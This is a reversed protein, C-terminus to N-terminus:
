EAEPSKSPPTVAEQAPTEAGPVALVGRKYQQLLYLSKLEGEKARGIARKQDLASLEPVTLPLVFPTAAGASLGLEGFRRRLALLSLPADGLCADSALFAATPFQNLRALADEEEILRTVQKLAEIDRAMAQLAQYHGIFQAELQARKQFLSASNMNRAQFRAHQAEVPQVAEWATHLEQATEQWRAALTRIVNQPDADYRAAIQGIYLKVLNQRYQEFTEPAIQLPEDLFSQYLRHVREPYIFTQEIQRQILAPEMLFGARAMLAQIWDQDSQTLYNEATQAFLAAMCFLLIRQPTNGARLLTLVEPYLWCAPELQMQARAQLTAHIAQMQSAFHAKDMELRSGPTQAETEPVADESGFRGLLSSLNGFRMNMSEEQAEELTKPKEVHTGPKAYGARIYEPRSWDLEEPEEEEFDDEFDDDEDWDAEPSAELVGPAYATRPAEALDEADPDEPEEEGKVKQMLKQLAKRGEGLATDDMFGRAKNLFQAKLKEIEQRSQGSSQRADEDSGSFFKGTSM